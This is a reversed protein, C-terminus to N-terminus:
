RKKPVDPEKGSVFREIDAALQQDQASSSQKM